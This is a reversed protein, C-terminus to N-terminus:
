TFLGRQATAMPTHVATEVRDRGSNKAEYLQLDAESITAQLSGSAGSDHAVGFSATPRLGPYEPSWSVKALGARIEHALATAGSLNTDPLFVIFEEGGWRATIDSARVRSELMQAVKVLVEDGGTHGFEDNVLKFHDVDFLIVCMEQNKRLGLQWLQNAQEYFARRNNLGTLSDARALAEAQRKADDVLRYQGALAFALLVIDLCMGMDVARYTFANYPIWGLVACATITSGLAGSLAAVLFYSAWRNGSRWSLLGLLIMLSSFVLMLGFALILSWSQDDKFLLLVQIGMSSVCLVKVWQSVRPYSERLDLFRLAFVLGSVNYLTMLLPNSFQQWSSAHSWFSLFGHGTYAINMALFSGLYISFYLYRKDRMSWYLMLNYILLALVAGYLLGYSYGDFLTKREYEQSTLFFIPMSMPDISEVRLLVTTQGPPYSFSFVPFRAVGDRESSPQRDGDSESAVRLGEVFWHADVKDLWSTKIMLQRPQVTSSPNSVTMKVWVPAAGIGFNLVANVAPVFTESLARDANLPEGQEQLTALQLGVPSRYSTDTTLTQALVPGAVLWQLTVAAVCLLLRIMRTFPTKM